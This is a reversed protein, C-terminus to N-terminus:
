IIVNKEFCHVLSITPVFCFAFDIIQVEALSHLAFIILMLNFILNNKKAIKFFAICFTAFLWIGIQSFLSIYVGDYTTGTLRFFGERQINTLSPAYQPFFTLGYYNIIYAGMRIRSNFLIDINSIVNYFNGNLYLICLLLFCIGVFLFIYKSTFNIIRKFLKNNILAFSISTILCLIIIIDSKFVLYLIVGLILFMFAYKLHKKKSYNLFIREFFTWFILTCFVNQHFGFLPIIQGNDSINYPFYQKNILHFLTYIIGIFLIIVIKFNNVIKLSSVLDDKKFVMVILTLILLSISKCNLYTLVSFFLFVIIAAWSMLTKKENLMNLFAFVFIFALLVVDIYFPLGFMSLKVITRFVILFYFFIKLFDLKGSVKADRYNLMMGNAEVRLFNKKSKM